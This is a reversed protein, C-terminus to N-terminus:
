FTVVRVVQDAYVWFPRAENMSSCGAYGNKIDESVEDLKGRILGAEGTISVEVVSGTRIKGAPTEITPQNDRLSRAYLEASRTKVADSVPPLNFASGAVVPPAFVTGALHGLGARCAKRGAPTRPHTCATHDIRAM